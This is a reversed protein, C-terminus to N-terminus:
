RGAALDSAFLAQDVPTLIGDYNWDASLNGAAFAANYEAQEVPRSFVGDRNFDSRQRKLPLRAIWGEGQGAANSGGGVLVDRASMDSVFIGTFQPAIPFGIAACQSAITRPVADTWTVTQLSIPDFGAMVQGTENIAVVGGTSASPPALLTVRSTIGNSFEVFTAVDLATDLLNVAVTLGDGSVAVGTVQWTPGFPGPPYPNTIIRGTGSAIDVIFAESGGGFSSERYGVCTRRFDAVGTVQMLSAGAGSWPPLYTELDLPVVGGLMWFAKRAGTAPDVGSWVFESGDANMGDFRVQDFAPQVLNTVLTWPGGASSLGSEFVPQTFSDWRGFVVGGGNGAMVGSPYFPLGPGFQLLTRQPPDWAATAFMRRNMFGNAEIGTVLLGDSSVHGCGSSPQAGTPVGVGRFFFRPAPPFAATLTQALAAAHFVTGMLAAAFLGHVTRTRAFM